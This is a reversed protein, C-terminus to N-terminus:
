AKVKKEDLYAQQYIKKSPLEIATLCDHRCDDICVAYQGEADMTWEMKSNHGYVQLEVGPMRSPKYRNWLKQPEEPWACDPDPNPAHSIYYKKGEIEVTHNWPLRRLWDKVDEPITGGFSKLTAEGGNWLWTSEDNLLVDEHNGYLCVHEPHARFYEIVEKSKPGRDVLDGVQIITRPEPLQEILLMLEDFRGAVDGLVYVSV